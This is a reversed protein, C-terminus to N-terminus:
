RCARTARDWPVQLVMWDTHNTFGAQEYMPRGSTTTYLYFRRIGQDGAIGLCADLLRRGIGKGRSGPRVYMNIIYGESSRPDEPLPPVDHVVVSVLGIQNEGDEVLWSVIRGSSLTREFFKRTDDLLRDPFDDPSMGRSEALFEIRLECLVLLDTFTAIRLNVARM